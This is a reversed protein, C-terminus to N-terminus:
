LSSGPDDEETASNETDNFEEVFRASTFSQEYPLFTKNRVKKPIGIGWLATEAQSSYATYQKSVGFHAPVCTHSPQPLLFPPSSVASPADETTSATSVAGNNKRHNGKSPTGFTREDSIEKEQVAEKDECNATPKLGVNLV